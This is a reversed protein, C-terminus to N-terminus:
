KSKPKESVPQPLDAVYGAKKFRTASEDDLAVVEGLKLETMKGEVRIYLSPKIVQYSAM